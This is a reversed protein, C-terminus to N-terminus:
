FQELEVQMNNREIFVKMIIISANILVAAWLSSFSTLIVCARVCAHVCARVCARVCLCVCM